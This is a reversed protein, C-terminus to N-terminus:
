ASGRSSRRGSRTSTRTTASSTACTARPRSSTTGADRGGVRAAGHHQPVDAVVAGPLRGRVPDRGRRRHEGHGSILLMSKDGLDFRIGRSFSSPKAYDYAENLVSSAVIPLKEIPAPREAATPAPRARSSAPRRRGPHRAGGDRRARGRIPARILPRITRTDTSSAMRTPSRTSPLTQSGPNSRSRGPFTVDSLWKPRGHRGAIIGHLIERQAATSDRAMSRGQTPRRRPPRSSQRAEGATACVAPGPRTSRGRSRGSRAPRARRRRSRAARRGARGAGRPGGGVAAVSM